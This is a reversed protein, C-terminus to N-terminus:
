VDGQMTTMMAALELSLGDGSSRLLEQVNGATAVDAHVLAQMGADGLVDQIAKGCAAIDEPEDDLALWAMPTPRSELRLSWEDAAITTGNEDALLDCADEGLEAQFAHAVAEIVAQLNPAGTAM